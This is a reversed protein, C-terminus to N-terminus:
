IYNAYNIDNDAAKVLDLVFKPGGQTGLGNNTGVYSELTGPVQYWGKCNGTFYMQNYSIEKYFDTITGFPNPGDFLKKQFDQESYTPTSNSYQGLLAVAFVTDAVLSKESIEGKAIRERLAKKLSMKQAYYGEGYSQAINQKLQEFDKPPTVGKRPPEIATTASIYILSIFLPLLVKFKMTLQKKM